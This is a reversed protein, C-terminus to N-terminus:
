SRPRIDFLLPLHDHDQTHPHEPLFPRRRRRFAMHAADNSRAPCYYYETHRIRFRASDSAHKCLMCILLFSGPRPHARVSFREPPGQELSRHQLLTPPKRIPLHRVCADGPLLFFYADAGGLRRGLRSPLGPFNQVSLWALVYPTMCRGEGVFAVCGTESEGRRRTGQRRHQPLERTAGIRRGWSEVGM